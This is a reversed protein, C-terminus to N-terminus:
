FLRPSPFVPIWTLQIWLFLCLRDVGCRSTDEDCNNQPLYLTLVVAGEFDARALDAPVIWICIGIVQVTPYQLILYYCVDFRLLRVLVPTPASVM